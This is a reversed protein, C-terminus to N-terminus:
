DSDLKMILVFNRVTYYSDVAKWDLSSIAKELIPSEENNILAETVQQGNGINTQVSRVAYIDKDLPMSKIIKEVEAFMSDTVIEEIPQDGRYGYNSVVIQWNYGNIDWIDTGIGNDIKKANDWFAVILTHLINVEFQEFCDAIAEEVTSSHGVFSEVFNQNPLLIHIDLQVVVSDEFREMEFAQSAIGPFLGNVFYYDEIQELRMDFQGLIELLQKDTDIELLKSM